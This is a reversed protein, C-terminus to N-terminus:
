GHWGHFGHDREKSESNRFARPKFANPRIPARDRPLAARLPAELRPTGLRLKPVLIFAPDQAIVPSLIKLAVIRDLQKHRAQYVMGM